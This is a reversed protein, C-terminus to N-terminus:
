FQNATNNFLIGFAANEGKKYTKFGIKYIDDLIYRKVHTKRDNEKEVPLDSKCFLM